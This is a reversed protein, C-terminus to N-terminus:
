SESMAEDRCYRRIRKYNILNGKYDMQAEYLGLVDTSEPIRKLEVVDLTVLWGDADRSLGSVRDPALGTLEGIQEKALQAIERGSMMTRAPESEENGSVIKLPVAM